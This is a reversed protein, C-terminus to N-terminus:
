KKKKKKKRRRRRRRRGEEEEEEKRRADREGTTWIVGGVWSHALTCTQGELARSPPQPEKHPTKTSKEDVDGM